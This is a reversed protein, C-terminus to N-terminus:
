YWCFLEWNLILQYFNVKRILTFLYSTGTIFHSLLGYISGVTLFRINFRFTAISYKSNTGGSSVFVNLGITPNSPNWINIPLICSGWLPGIIFPVVAVSCFLMLFFCFVVFTKQRRQCREKRMFHCSCNDTSFTPSMIRSCSIVTEIPFYLSWCAFKM